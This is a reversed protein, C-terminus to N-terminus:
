GDNQEEPSHDRKAYIHKIRQTLEGIEHSNPEPKQLIKDVCACQAPTMEARVEPSAFIGSFSDIIIRRHPM